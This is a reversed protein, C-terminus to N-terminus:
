SNAQGTQQGNAAAEVQAEEQVQAAQVQADEPMLAEEVQAEEQIRAEDDMQAHEEERKEKWLFVALMGLDCAAQFGGALVFAIWFLGRDALVGTILPGISSSCTKVVNIAGIVVTRENPLIVDALFASGPAADM